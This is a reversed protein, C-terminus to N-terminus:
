AEQTIKPWNRYRLRVQKVCSIHPCFFSPIMYQHRPPLVAYVNLFIFNFMCLGEAKRDGKPDGLSNYPKSKFGPRRSSYCCAVGRDIMRVSIASESWHGPESLKM